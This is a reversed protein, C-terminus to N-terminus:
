GVWIRGNYHHEYNFAWNWNAFFKSSVVKSKHCKVCTEVLGVFSIHNDDLFVHVDAQKPSHNLGRVNYSCLKSM